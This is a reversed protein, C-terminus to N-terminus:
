KKALERLAKGVYYDVFVPEQQVRTVVMHLRCLEEHTLPPLDRLTASLSNADVVVEDGEALAALISREGTAPDLVTVESTAGSKLESSVKSLAAGFVPRREVSGTFFVVKSVMRLAKKNEIM